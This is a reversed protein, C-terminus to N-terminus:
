QVRSPFWRKEVIFPVDAIVVYMKSRAKVASFGSANKGGFALHIRCGCVEGDILFFFVVWM